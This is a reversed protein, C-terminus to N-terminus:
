TGRYKSKLRIGAYRKGGSTIKQYKKGMHEGWNTMSQPHENREKKWESYDSYLVSSKDWTTKPHGDPEEYWCREDLWNGITSQSGYYDATEAEVATCTGIKKGAEIWAQHGKLLWWLVYSAEANLKRPLDPDERGLFCAKFPVIKLRSQIGIDVNRLLPRHNGYILHKHTRPFEVWDKHMYHGSLMADGTLEKIKSEAWHSGEEIEGSTVLRAGKLNMIETAHAQNKQSMLTASPIARAYDGMVDAVMDGLTNKGNRGAGHWFLMYHEEIGGSLCAGLSRQIFLALKEDEETIESLFQRFVAGGQDSPATSTVKTICDSPDHPSLQMTRLDYTGNPCNLLYNNSDFEAANRSFKPDTRCLNDVGTVFSNKAPTANGKHNHLRALTRIDNRVQGITDVQWRMGDWQYWKGTGHLYAYEGCHREAFALAVNDETPKQLLATVVPWEVPLSKPAPLTVGARVAEDIDKVGEPMKIEKLSM